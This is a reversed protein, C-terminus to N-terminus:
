VIAQIGEEMRRQGGGCTAPPRTYVPRCASTWPSTSSAPAHRPTRTPHMRSRGVTRAHGQTASPGRQKACFVPAPPRRTSRAPGALTPSDHTLHPTHPTTGLELGEDAGARCRACAAQLIGDSRGPGERTHVWCLLIVLHTHPPPTSQTPLTAPNAPRPRMRPRPRLLPRGVPWDTREDEGGGRSEMCDM